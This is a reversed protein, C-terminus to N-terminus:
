TFDGEGKGKRSTSNNDGVGKAYRKDFGSEVGAKFGDDYGLSYQRELQERMQSEREALQQIKLELEATAANIPVEIALLDCLTAHLM